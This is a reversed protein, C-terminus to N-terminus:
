LVLEFLQSTLRAGCAIPPSQQNKNPKPWQYLKVIGELGSM